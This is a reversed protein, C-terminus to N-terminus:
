REQITISQTAEDWIVDLGLREAVFRLPLMTRGNRLVPAADTKIREGDVIVEPNGIWLDMYHGGKRVTVKQEEGSWGVIGGLADVVFRVPVLTRGGEVVPPQDLQQAKGSVTVDKSGVTLGVTVPKASPKVGPYILSLNDFLIQGKLQKKSVVYIRKLSVANDPVEVAITKWGIWDVSEAITARQITGKADAFEVRLWGGQEDGFVDLQFGEADAPVPIGDKGNFAAYAALDASGDGATFDYKLSLFDNWGKLVELEATVLAEPYKEASVDWPIATFDTLLQDQPVPIVIPTSYGDYHAVLMAESANDQYGTFTLTDGIVTGTVGYLQWQVAEPPITGTSGDALTAKLQLKISDGPKWQVPQVNPVVSLKMISSQDLVQVEMTGKVDGKYVVVTGKGGAAGTVTGDPNVTLANSNAGAKYQLQLTAPDLPNYNTDYAKATYTGTQGKWLLAPGSPLLGKLASPAATAYIGIANVIKRQSGDKPANILKAEFEGLPRSVVTTSGGGDLNVARWLGLQVLLQQFESLRPGTSGNGHDAAVLYVYRQDKTFGVASRATDSNPGIGSVDRTYSSAKGDIVLMTHGGILMKLDDESYTLNPNVPQLSIDSLLPEGLKVNAKIFEAGKGSARLIYGNEPPIADIKSNIAIETVVNDVVLVETPTTAGDNARSTSGWASTYMHIANAHSHSGDAGWSYTRNMGALPFSQGNAATVVGQFTFTEIIPKNDKTIGFAYMGTQEITPTALLVGSTVQPGLPAGEASMAFFDGNIGAIAGTERSMQLVNAKKTFQGNQGTMVDLKVNPNQLDAIIVNVKATYSKGNRTRTWLYSQQKVGSSVISEQQLVLQPAQQQATAAQATNAALLPLNVSGIFLCGAMLCAAAPKSLVKFSRIEGM